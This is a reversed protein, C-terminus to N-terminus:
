KIFGGVHTHVDEPIISKDFLYDMIIYEYGGRNTDKKWWANGIDSSMVWLSEHQDFYFAWKQYVGINRQNKLLINGLSDIMEYRVLGNDISIVLMLGNDTLQYKGPDGITSGKWIKDADRTCSLAITALLILLIRNIIMKM